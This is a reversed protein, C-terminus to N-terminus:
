EFEVYCYLYKIGDDPGILQEIMQWEEETEFFYEFGSLTGIVVVGKTMKTIRENPELAQGVTSKM